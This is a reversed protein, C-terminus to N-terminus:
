SCVSRHNRALGENREADWKARSEPGCRLAHSTVGSAMARIRPGGNWRGQRIATGHPESHRDQSQLPSRTSSVREM